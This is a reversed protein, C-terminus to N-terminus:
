EVEVAGQAGVQVHSTGGEFVPPAAAEAVAAPAMRAMPRAPPFSASSNIALRKIRYGRAGLAQAAIDARARFAAVAEKILDNETQRRLEPSVGFAIGGLQMTAQLRAVLQAMQQFDRGELRVEARGRWGTARNNRDYVPYTQSGGTRARVERFEGATRLAEATTRNLVNAVTVPNADNAEVVMTATMLDNAVERTAEAALEVQAGAGAPSVPQALALPALAALLATFLMRM